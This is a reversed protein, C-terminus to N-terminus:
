GPRRPLRNSKLYAAATKIPSRTTFTDDYRYMKVPKDGRLTPPMTEITAAM